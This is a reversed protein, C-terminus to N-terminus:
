NYFKIGEDNDEVSMMEHELLITVSTEDLKKRIEKDTYPQHFFRM